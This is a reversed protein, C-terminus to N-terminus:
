NIYPRHDVYQLLLHCGVRNNVLWTKLSRWYLVLSPHMTRYFAM